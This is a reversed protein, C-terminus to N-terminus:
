KKRTAKSPLTTKVRNSTPKLRLLVFSQLLAWAVANILFVGAAAIAAALIQKGLDQNLLGMVGAAVLLVIALMVYTHQLKNRDTTTSNWTNLTTKLSEYM